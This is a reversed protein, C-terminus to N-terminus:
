FPNQSVYGILRGIAERSFSEVPVNGISVIGSTPHTLRLLVKLLTTKGCGSAGAFGITEGHRIVASVNKLASKTGCETPYDVCLDQVVLLPQGTALSP